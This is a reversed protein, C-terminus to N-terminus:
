PKPDKPHTTTRRMGNEDVVIGSPGEPKPKPSAPVPKVVKEGFPKFPSESNMEDTSRM